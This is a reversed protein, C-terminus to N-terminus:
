AAVAVKVGESKEKKVKKDKKSKSEAVARPKPIAPLLVDMLKQPIGQFKLGSFTLVFEQM